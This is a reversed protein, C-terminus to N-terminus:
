LDYLITMKLCFSLDSNNMNLIRGHDDFISVHLKHIDVPGFYTRPETIIEYKKNTILNDYGKGYM